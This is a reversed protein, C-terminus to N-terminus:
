KLVTVQVRRAQDPTGDAQMQEPKVLDVNGEPAGANRLAQAVKM